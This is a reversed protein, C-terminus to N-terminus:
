RVLGGRSWIQLGSRHRCVAWDDAQAAADSIEPGYKWYIKNMATNGPPQRCCDGHRIAADAGADIQRRSHPWESHRGRLSLSIGDCIFIQGLGQQLWGRRAFQRLGRNVTGRDVGLLRALEAQSLWVWSSERANSGTPDGVAYLLAALRAQTDGQRLDLRRADVQELQAALRGAFWVMSDLDTSVLTRFEDLSWAMTRSTGVAEVCDGPRESPALDESHTLSGPTFLHSLELQCGGSTSLLTGSLVLHVERVPKGGALVSDRPEFTRVHGREALALPVCRPAAATARASGLPRLQRVATDM